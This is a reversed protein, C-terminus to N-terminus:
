PQLALEIATSLADTSVLGQFRSLIKGDRDVILYTPTADVKYRTFVSNDTDLVHTWTAGYQKMFEVTSEATAGQQSGAVSLLVVGQDRYKENIYAISSSMQQCVHCWSVMFELVVVQGRFSSLTVTQGSLGASTVEPLSFDAAVNGVGGAERPPQSMVYGAVLVVLIVIAAFILRGSGSSKKGASSRGRSKSRSLNSGRDIQSSEYIDKM